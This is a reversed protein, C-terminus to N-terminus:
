RLPRSPVIASARALRKPARWKRGAFGIVILGAGLLGITGPEPANSADSYINYTNSGATYKTAVDAAEPGPEHGPANQLHTENIFTRNRQLSQVIAENGTGEADDSLLYVEHAMGTGKGTAKDIIEPFRLVDSWNEPHLNDCGVTECVVVDGAVVLGCKDLGLQIRGDSVRVDVICGKASDGPNLPDASLVGCFLLSLAFTCILVRSSIGSLIKM